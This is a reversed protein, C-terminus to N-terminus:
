NTGQNDRRWRIHNAKKHDGNERVLEEYIEWFYEDTPCDEVAKEAVTIAFNKEVFASTSGNLVLTSVESVTVEGRGSSISSINVANTFPASKM